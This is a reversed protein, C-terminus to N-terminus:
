RQRMLRLIQDMKEHLERVEGRLFQVNEILEGVVRDHHGSHGHLERELEEAQRRLEHAQDELGSGALVESAEMLAEIRGHIHHRDSEDVRHEHEEHGHMAHWEADDGGEHEHYRDEHEHDDHRHHAEHRHEEHRIRHEEQDHESPHREDRDDDGDQHFSRLQFRVRGEMARVRNFEALLEELTERDRVEELRDGLHERRRSLEHLERELLDSAAGHQHVRTSRWDQAVANNMAADLALELRRRLSQVTPHREGYKQQVSHLDARIANIRQEFERAADAGHKRSQEAHKREAAARMVEAEARKKEALTRLEEIKKQAAVREHEHRKRVQVVPVSEATAHGKAILPSVEEHQKRAAVRHQVTEKRHQDAKSRFEQQQNLGTLIQRSDVLLPRSPLWSFPSGLGAREDLSQRPTPPQDSHVPQAQTITCACMLALLFKM